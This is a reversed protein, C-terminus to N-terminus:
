LHWSVTSQMSVCVASWHRLRPPLTTVFQAAGLELEAAGLELERALELEEAGGGLLLLLMSSGGELLERALELEEAGGGLELLLM